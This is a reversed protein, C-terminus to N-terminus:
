RGSAQAAPGVRRAGYWVWELLADQAARSAWASPDNVLMAVVHRRGDRDLVYGAVARAGNITGTKIHAFGRAPSGSLRHRGTGDVGAVSLSSIFEPMWPQAFARDLMQGLTRASISEIRSLGSGNEVVLTTTDMGAARLRAEVVQAGATVANPLGGASAGLTALAIFKRNM